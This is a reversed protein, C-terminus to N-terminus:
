LVTRSTGHDPTSTRSPWLVPCGPMWSIRSIASARNTLGLSTKHDLARADSRERVQVIDTARYEAKAQEFLM